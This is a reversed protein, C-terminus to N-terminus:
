VICLPLFSHRPYLSFSTITVMALHFFNRGLLQLVKIKKGSHFHCFICHVATHSKQIRVKRSHIAILVRIVYCRLFLKSKQHSNVFMNTFKTLCNEVYLLCFTTSKWIKILPINPSFFIQGYSHRSNTSKKQPFSRFIWAQSRCGHSPNIPLYTPGMAAIRRM